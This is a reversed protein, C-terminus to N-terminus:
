NLLKLLILSISFKLRFFQFTEVTEIALVVRLGPISAKSKDVFNMLCFILLLSIRVLHNSRSCYKTTSVNLHEGIIPLLSVSRLIPKSSLPLTNHFCFFFSFILKLIESRAAPKPEPRRFCDIRSGM